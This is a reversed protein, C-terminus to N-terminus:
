AKVGAIYDFHDTFELVTRDAYRKEMEALGEQIEEKSFSSLVSMYCSEVMQFYKEKPIAHPYDLADREVRFGAEGLLRVLDDPDAHWRECKQLAKQFLPYQVKPPVHVLLLIGGPTLRQHLNRFLREKDQIHHVTEKILVKDYSGPRESFVVADLPHREMPAEQPIQALMEAFPDVGIIKNKLPVQKLIDLSYMGTGCGLDVFTDSERLRLKDIMKETLARVFGPSYYLFGDYKQALRRYHIQVVDQM